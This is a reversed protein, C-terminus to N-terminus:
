GVTQAAKRKREVAQEYVKVYEDASRRWSWDQTMGTQVLQEWLDRDYRYSQCATRLTYDLAAADYEDFRFGTATRNRINEPAADVVTDALGGTARVVPVAGYKLSYLQNLGCPEFRSPMLFMDSAAEIRHALGEDFKFRAAIKGPHTEALTGLLEHYEPQGTGLVVWQAYEGPM